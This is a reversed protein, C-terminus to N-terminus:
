LRYLIVYSHILKIYKYNKDIYEKGNIEKKMKGYLEFADVEKEHATQIVQFDDANDVIEFDSNIFALFEEKNSFYKGWDNLFYDLDETSLNMILNHIHEINEESINEYSIPIKDFYHNIREIGKSSYYPLDSYYSNLLSKGVEIAKNKKEM